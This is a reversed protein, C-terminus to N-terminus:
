SSSCVLTAYLKRRWIPLKRHRAFYQKSERSLPFGASSRYAVELFVAPDEKRRRSVAAVVLHELSYRRHGM